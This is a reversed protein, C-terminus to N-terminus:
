INFMKQLFNRNDEKPVSIPKPVSPHSYQIQDQEIPAFQNISMNLPIKKVPLDKRTKKNELARKVRHELQKRLLLIDDQLKRKKINLEAQIPSISDIIDLTYLEPNIKHSKMDYLFGNYKSRMVKYSYELKLFLNKLIKKLKKM